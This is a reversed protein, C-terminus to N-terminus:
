RLRMGTGLSLLGFAQLIWLILFLVVIGQLLRKIPPSLPVYTEVWWLLIGVVIVVLLLSLISM